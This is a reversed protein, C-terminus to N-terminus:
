LKAEPEDVELKFITQFQHWAEKKVWLYIPDRYTIHPKWVNNCNLLNWINFKLALFRILTDENHLIGEGKILLHHTAEPQTHFIDPHNSAKEFHWGHQLKKIFSCYRTQLETFSPSTIKHPYYHIHIIGNNGYLGFETGVYWFNAPYKIKENEYLIECIRSDNYDFKDNFPLLKCHDTSLQEWPQADLKKVLSVCFEPIDDITQPQKIDTINLPQEMSNITIYSFFLIIFFPAKIVKM